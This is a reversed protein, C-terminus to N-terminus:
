GASSWGCTRIMAGGGGAPVTIPVATSRDAADKWWETTIGAGSFRLYAPGPPLGFFGFTESVFYASDMVRGSADTVTVEIPGFTTPLEGSVYGALPVHIALGVVDAGPSVTVDVVILRAYPAVPYAPQITLTHTGFSVGGLTFNGDADSGAEAEGASIFARVPEGLPGVIRGSVSGRAAMTLTVPTTMGAEITVTAHAELGLSTQFATIVYTGPAMRDFAFTRDANPQTSTSGLANVAYVVVGAAADAPSMPPLAVQGAVAGFATWSADCEVALNAGTASTGSAVHLRRGDSYTSGGYWAARGCGMGVADVPAGTLVYDGTPLGGLSYSGPTTTLTFREGTVVNIATVAAPAGSVAGAIRGGVDLTVAIVAAGTVTVQVSQPLYGPASITVQFTGPPMALDAIGNQSAAAGYWQDHKANYAQIKVSSPVSGDSGKVNFTVTQRDPVTLDQVTDASLTILDPTLFETGNNTQIQPEYSGTPLTLSYKGLQDTWAQFTGNGITMGLPADAVPTGAATRVTGEIKYLPPLSIAYGTLDDGSGITVETASAIGAAGNWWTVEGGFDASLRYTGPPVGTIQFSGDEQSVARVISAGMGTLGVQAGSVPVGRNTVVGSLKATQYLNIDIGTLSAGASVPLYTALARTVAGGYYATVRDNGELTAALVTYYGAGLGSVSWAGEADTTAYGVAVGDSRWAEVPRFAAPVNGPDMTVHGSLTALGQAQITPPAATTSTSTVAERTLAGPVNRSGGAAFSVATAADRSSSKEYWESQFVSATGDFQVKYSGPAVHAISWSGNPGTTAAFDPNPSQTSADFLKVVVTAIGTTTGKETVIGSASAYQELTFGLATITQGATLTLKPTSSPVYGALTATLVRDGAPLRLSYTGQAATTASRGSTYDTVTVSSLRQKTVSDIVTGSVVADAAAHAQPTPIVTLGLLVMALALTQCTFRRWRSRVQTVVHGESIRGLPNAAV